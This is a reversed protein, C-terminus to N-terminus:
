TRTNQNPQWLVEPLQMVNMAWRSWVFLADSLRNLYMLSKHDIGDTQALTVVKREARRCITRALHLRANLESGGPLVFSKLTPLNENMDDIEQELQFIESRTIRPMQPNMDEPLTALQSGLNFLEHQVRLLIEELIQLVPYDDLFRELEARALGVVANLEDVVGYASIRLDDKPLMQGVVLRTQGTDGTRTYVKNITLNPEKFRIESSLVYEQCKMLTDDTHFDVLFNYRNGFENFATHNCLKSSGKDM